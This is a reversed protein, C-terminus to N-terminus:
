KKSQNDTLFIKQSYRGGISNEIVVIYVGNALCSLDVRFATDTLSREMLLIGITSYCYIKYQNGDQLDQPVNIQLFSGNTVFIDPKHNLPDDTVSTTSDIMVSVDEIFYYAGYSGISGPQSITTTTDNHFNGITIYQEGGSAVFQGSIKKWVMTDQLPGASNEIQPIVNLHLANSFPGPATQSLYAGMEVIAQIYGDNLSVYYEVKYTQGGVLPSSLTGTIYERYETGYNYCYIGAYGEGSRPVQVTPQIGACNYHFYDSSGITPKNWDNIYLNSFQGFAPCTIYSDFGPNLVLNQSKVSLIFLLSSLITLIIYKM